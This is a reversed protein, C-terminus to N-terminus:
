LAAPPFSVWLSWFWLFGLSSGSFPFCTCISFSLLLLETACDSSSFMYPYGLPSGTDTDTDHLAAATPGDSESVRQSSTFMQRLKDEQGGVIEELRDLMTKVSVAGVSVGRQEAQRRLENGAASLM